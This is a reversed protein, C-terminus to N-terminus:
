DVYIILVFSFRGNKLTQQSTYTVQGADLRERISKLGKKTSLPPPGADQKMENNMVIILHRRRLGIYIGAKCKDNNVVGYKDINEVLLMTQMPSVMLELAEDSVELEVLPQYGLKAAMLEMFLQSIEVEHAVSVLEGPRLRAYFRVIQN